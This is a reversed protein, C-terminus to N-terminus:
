PERVGKAQRDSSWRQRGKIRQRVPSAHLVACSSIDTSSSEEHQHRAVGAVEAFEARGDNTIQPARATKRSQKAVLQAGSEAKSHSATASM